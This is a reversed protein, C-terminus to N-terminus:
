GDSLVKLAGAVFGPHGIRNRAVVDLELDVSGYLQYALLLSPIATTRSVTVVRAFDQGGPVARLVQSRLEVLAPYATDEAVAALDELMVAVQDRAALAEDLSEFKVLPALRAAEIAIIRRLAGIIATQNVLERERTSTTPVVVPGLDALYCEFLAEMVNGPAALATDVLGTIAGRFSTLVDAPKRVLSSAQATMLTVRGTLEALEQSASTIPALFESLSEAANTLAIEASDFAWSPLGEDEYLEVFEADMAVNAADASADVQEPGDVVETPVPAQTPTEAFDIAIMAIGGEGRSERVSVNACMVRRAGYSPLVLEGTGEVDELKALLADRQALYDDGIVYADVRFGRAKRGLDEGFPDDRLPFEHIVARRGGSREVSEVFFPVGRFTAGILNRKDGFKVRRLDERWSM